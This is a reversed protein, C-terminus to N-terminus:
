PGAITATYRWDLVDRSAAEGLGRARVLSRLGLVGGGGPLPESSEVTIRSHLTDGERVPALHDCGEWALVTVLAPLARSAQALALAVTHGGYVLRGASAGTDDHHVAAINLTLRALEPAASVVDGATVELTTGASVHGFSRGGGAGAAADLRWGEIAAMGPDASGAALAPDDIDDDHRTVADQDRLPLMACRRFDLVLRGHQDVTRIRLVALGTNRRGPRARNQRLAVIETRSRLTDGHTPFRHFALGRYFLNAVVNRTVESSQGIAVDWVLAPHLLPEPRGLVRASLEHDLPLRLRDGTIAQHVAAHGATLTIAPSSEFVDGRSLDDFYPGDILTSGECASAGSAEPDRESAM